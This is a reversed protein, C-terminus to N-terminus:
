PKRRGVLTRPPWPADVARGGANSYLSHLRAGPGSVALGLGPARSRSRSASCGGGGRLGSGQPGWLARAPPVCQQDELQFRFGLGSPGPPRSSASNIRWSSEYSRAPDDLIKRMDRRVVWDSRPNGPKPSLLSRTAGALIKRPARPM